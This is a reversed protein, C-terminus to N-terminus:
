RKIYGELDERLEDISAHNWDSSWDSQDNSKDTLYDPAQWRHSAVPTPTHRALLAIDFPKAFRLGVQDGRSWSVNAFHQGADGLDLLVEAEPPFVARCEALAGTASINRLRAPICDHNFLIDGSWILPHRVGSRRVEERAEAKPKPDRVPEPAKPAKGASPFSRRIVDLLLSAREGAGGAVQTEPAFELGVRDGRIWRVACELGDCDGLFLTVKQWMDLPADTRIMAGGGSLNVLDVAHNKRGVKLKAKEAALRHRDDDRHDAMRVEERLVPVTALSMDERVPSPKKAPMVPGPGTGGSGGIRSRFSNM